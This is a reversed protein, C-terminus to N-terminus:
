VTRALDVVGDAVELVYKCCIPFLICCTRIVISVNSLYAFLGVVPVVVTANVVADTNGALPLMVM